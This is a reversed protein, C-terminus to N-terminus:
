RKGEDKAASLPSVHVGISRAMFGGLFGNYRTALCGSVGLVQHKERPKRLPLLVTALDSAEDVKSSFQRSFIAWRLESDGLKANGIKAM